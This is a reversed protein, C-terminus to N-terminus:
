DDSCHRTQKDNGNGDVESIPYGVDSVTIKEPLSCLGSNTNFSEPQVGTNARISKSYKSVSIYSKHGAQNLRTPYRSLRPLNSSLHGYSSYQQQRKEKSENYNEKGNFYFFPLGIKSKELIL